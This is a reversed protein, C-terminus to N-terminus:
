SLREAGEEGGGTSVELIKDVQKQSFNGSKDKLKALEEAPNM